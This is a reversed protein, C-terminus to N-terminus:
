GVTNVSSVKRLVGLRREAFHLSIVIVGGEEREAETGQLQALATLVPGLNHRQSSARPSLRSPLEARSSFAVNRRRRKKKRRDSAERGELVGGEEVVRAVGKRGRPVSELEETWRRGGVARGGKTTRLEWRRNEARRKTREIARISSRCQEKAESNCVEAITSGVRRPTWNKDVNEEEEEEKQWRRGGGKEEDRNEVGAEAV